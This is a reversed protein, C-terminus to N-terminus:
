QCFTIFVFAYFRTFIHVRAKFLSYDPHSSFIRLSDLNNIFNVQNGGLGHCYSLGVEEGSKRGMTDLCNHLGDNKMQFLFLQCYPTLNCRYSFFENKISQNERFFEEFIQPCHMKRCFISLIKIKVEGLYYYDLPM